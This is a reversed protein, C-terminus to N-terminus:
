KQKGVYNIFPDARLAEVPYGAQLAQQAYKSSLSRDNMRAWAAAAAYLVDNNDPSQALARQLSSVAAEHQGLQAHYLGQSALAVADQPNVSLRETTLRLALDYYEAPNSCESSMQCADALNGCLRADNPALKVAQQFMEMAREYQGSYFYNTGANSYGKASPAIRLSARAAEAAEEFRGQKFLAGSLYTFHRPNQPDLEAAKRYQAIAEDLQNNAYLTYAYSAHNQPEGPALEIAREIDNRAEDMRGLDTLVDARARWVSDLTPALEIALNFAELAYEPRGTALYLNGLALQVQPSRANMTAARNCVGIAQQILNVNQTEDYQEQLARCKGAESEVFTPDIRLAQDFYDLANDYQDSSVALRLAELGQLYLDYAKANTTSVEGIRGIEEPLLELQLAGIVAQSIHKQVKFIDELQQEYTETWLSYGSRADTLQVAILVTHEQKRVSGDLIYDLDLEDAMVQADVARERLADATVRGSVRLQPLKVLANMIEESIGEAFYRNDSDHSLNRFPLVLISDPKRDAVTQLHDTEVLLNQRYWMIGLLIVLTAIIFFDIKRGLSLGQGPSQLDAVDRHLGTPTIDFSWSLTIALPFGLAFLIIVFTVTWEPLGFRPFIVDAIQILLWAVVAYAAVVRLVHRRHLEGLLSM